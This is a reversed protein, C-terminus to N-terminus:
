EGRFRALWHEMQRGAAERGGLGFSLAFAVAVAGLTLAFALNVIDDAIGMARLGMAFVIGLITVRALSAMFDSNPRDLRSIAGHALNALWLGVAIIVVGLLVEGGFEIFMAVIDSVRAFGLLNAAEVTAFLVVFFVILRGVIRSPTMAESFATKLGLKKPLDDFGLGGLLSAVLEGVFRSVVFAVALIAAAGFLRPVAAMFAGLMETAPASIPEIELANLAAILAPVFVFIFVVLGILNSLSMNGSLGAREGFRDAGAAALLNTVLNRLVKAAFWGVGAILVAALINPLISLIEELLSQIPQLLGELGLAELVAPIFILLVLGYLMHGMTESMPRMGAEASLRDDLDTTALARTMLKRVITAVIWAVVILVLAAILNPIFGLIQQALGQLPATLLPLNLINFFGILALLLVIYFAGAAIGGELDIKEGAGSHVRENLKLFGLSRRIIARAILAILWGLILILVSALIRPLSQGLTDVLSQTMSSIDM